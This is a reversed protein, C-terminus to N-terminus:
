KGLPALLRATKRRRSGPGFSLIGTDNQRPKAPDGDAAPCNQMRARAAHCPLSPLTSDTASSLPAARRPAAKPHQCANKTQLPLGDTMM